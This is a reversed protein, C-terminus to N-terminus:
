PMVVVVMRRDCAAGRGDVLVGHREDEVVGPHLRRSPGMPHVEPAMSPPADLEEAAFCVRRSEAYRPM